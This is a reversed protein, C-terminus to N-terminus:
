YVQATLGWIHKRQGDTLEEVTLCAPPAVAITLLREGIKLRHYGHEAIAPLCANGDLRGDVRRGDELHLIFPTNSSFEAALSLPRNREHTLLPDLQRRQQQQQLQALSAGIQQPSQAAYGLSELLARQADVAVRQPRGNADLWDVSFGAATALRALLEDSM